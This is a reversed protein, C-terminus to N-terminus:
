PRACVILGPYPGDATRHAGHRLGVLRAHSARHGHLTITLQAARREAEGLVEALESQSDPHRLSRNGVRDADVARHDGTELSAVRPHAWDDSRSGTRGQSGVEPHLEVPFSRRQDVVGPVRSDDVSEDPQNPTAPPGLELEGKRTSPGDVGTVERPSGDDQALDFHPDPAEFLDLSLQMRLPIRGDLAKAPPARDVNQEYQWRRMPM